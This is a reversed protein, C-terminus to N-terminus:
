GEPPIIGRERLIEVARETVNRIEASTLNDTTAILADQVASGAVAAVDEQPVSTIRGSDADPLLMPEGGDLVKRCSGVTWRLVGEVKDYTQGQVDKGAEVRMWTDKSLPGLVAARKISLNLSKRREIVRNALRQLDPTSVSM